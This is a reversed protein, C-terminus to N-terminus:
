AARQLPPCRIILDKRVREMTLLSNNKASDAGFISKMDFYKEDGLVEIYHVRQQVSKITSLTVHTVAALLVQVPAAGPAPRARGAGSCTRPRPSGSCLPTQGPFASCLCCVDTDAHM